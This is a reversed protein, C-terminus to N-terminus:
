QPRNFKFCETDNKEKRKLTMRKPEAGTGGHRKNLFALLEAKEDDSVSDEKGKQIGAQEFQAVLRDVDTGIEKALNEVTEHAM